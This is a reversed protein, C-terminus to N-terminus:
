CEVTWLEHALRQGDGRDTRRQTWLVCGSTRTTVQDMPGRRRDAALGSMALPGAAPPWRLAATVGRSWVCHWRDLLWTPVSGAPTLSPTSPQSVGRAEGTRPGPSASSSPSNQVSQQYNLIATQAILWRGSTKKPEMELCQDSAYRFHPAHIFM